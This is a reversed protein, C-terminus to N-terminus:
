IMHLTSLAIVVSGFITHNLKLPAVIYMYVDICATDMIPYGLCTCTCKYASSIVVVVGSAICIAILDPITKLLHMDHIYVWCMCTRITLRQVGLVLATSWVLVLEGCGMQGTFDGSM